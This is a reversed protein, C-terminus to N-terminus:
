AARKGASRCVSNRNDEFAMCVCLRANELSNSLTSCTFSSRLWSLSSFFSSSLAVYAATLPSAVGSGATDAAESLAINPLSPAKLTLQQALIGAGPKCRILFGRCSFQVRQCRLTSKLCLTAFTHTISHLRQHQCAHTSRGLGEHLDEAPCLYLTAVMHLRGKLPRGALYSDDGCGM